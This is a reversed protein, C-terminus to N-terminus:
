AQKDPHVPHTEERVETPSRGTAAEPTEYDLQIFVRGIAQSGNASKEMGETRDMAAALKAYGMTLPEWARLCAAKYAESVPKPPKAEDPEDLITRAVHEVIRAHWRESLALGQEALMRTKTVYQKTIKDSAAM